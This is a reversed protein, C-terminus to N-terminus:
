MWDNQLFHFLSEKLNKAIDSPQLVMPMIQWSLATNGMLCVPFFLHGIWRFEKAPNFVLVKPKLAMGSAGPPELRVAITIGIKAEGTISKIFPNWQPYSAFDTLITWVKEPSAHILIETTLEKVCNAYIEFLYAL